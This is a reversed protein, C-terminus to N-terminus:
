NENVAIRNYNTVQKQLFILTTTKNSANNNQYREHSVAELTQHRVTTNNGSPTFTDASFENRSIEGSPRDITLVMCVSKGANLSMDIAKSQQVVIDLLYQMGCWSPALLVM